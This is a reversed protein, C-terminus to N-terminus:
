INQAEAAKRMQDVIGEDAIIQKTIDLNIDHTWALMKYLIDGTTTVTDNHVMGGKEYAIMSSRSPLGPSVFGNDVNMRVQRDFIRLLALKDIDRGLQVAKMHEAPMDDEPCQYSAHWQVASVLPERYYGYDRFRIRARELMRAGEYAHYFRTKKDSFDGYEAAQAFRAIDHTLAFMEALPLDVQPDCAIDRAAQLTDLVHVGKFVMLLQRKSKEGDSLDGRGQLLREELQVAEILLDGCASVLPHELELETVPQQDTNKEVAVM